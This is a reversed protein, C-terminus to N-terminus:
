AERGQAIKQSKGGLLFLPQKVVGKGPSCTLRLPYCTPSSTSQAHARLVARIDGAVQLRGTPIPSQPTLFAERRAPGPQSRGATALRPTPPPSHGYHVIFPSGHMQFSPVPFPHLSPATSGLHSFVSFPKALCTERNWKRSFMSGEESSLGKCGGNQFQGLVTHKIIQCQFSSVFM